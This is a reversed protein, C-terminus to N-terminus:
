VALNEARGIRRRGARREWAWRLLLGLALVAAQIAVALIVFVISGLGESFNPASEEHWPSVYDTLDYLYISVAVPALAPLLAWWRYVLFVGFIATGYLLPGLISGYWVDGLVGPPDIDFAHGYRFAGLLLATALTIAIRWRNTM